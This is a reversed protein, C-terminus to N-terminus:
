AQVCFIQNRYRHLNVKSIINDHIQLVGQFITQANITVSQLSHKTNVLKDSKFFLERIYEQLAHKICLKLFHAEMKHMQGMPM